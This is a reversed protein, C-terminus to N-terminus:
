APKGREHQWALRNLGAERTTVVKCCFIFLGRKHPMVAGM